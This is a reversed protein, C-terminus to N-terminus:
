DELNPSQYDMPVNGAVNALSKLPDTSAVTSINNDKLQNLQKSKMALQRQLRMILEKANPGQLQEPTLKELAEPDILFDDEDIDENVQDKSLSSDSNLVSSEFHSIGPSHGSQQSLENSSETSYNSASVSLKMAESSVDDRIPAYLALNSDLTLLHKPACRGGKRLCCMYVVVLAVVAGVFLFSIVFVIAFTVTNFPKLYGRLTLAHTTRYENFGTGYTLFCEISVNMSAPASLESWSAEGYMVTENHFVCVTHNSTTEKKTKGDTRRITFTTNCPLLYEGTFTISIQRDEPTQEADSSRTYALSTLRPIYFYSDRPAENTTITCQGDRLMWLSNTEGSSKDGVINQLSVTGGEFCILNRRASPFRSNAKSNENFVVYAMNAAAETICFVGNSHHSFATHNFSSTQTLKDVKEIHIFSSAWTCADVEEQDENFSQQSVLSPFSSM